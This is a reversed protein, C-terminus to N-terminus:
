GLPIRVMSGPSVSIYSTHQAMDETMLVLGLRERLMWVNVFSGVVRLLGVPCNFVKGCDEIDKTWPGLVALRARTDALCRLFYEAPM